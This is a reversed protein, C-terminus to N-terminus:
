HYEGKDGRKKNKLNSESEDEDSSEEAGPDIPGDDATAPKILSNFFSSFMGTSQKDAKNSEITINSDNLM